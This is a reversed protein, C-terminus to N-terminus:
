GIRIGAYGVVERYDGTVDGSTQYRILEAKKAGLCLSAVIGATTPQFGCMSINEANVVEYLGQADLRLIKDIAHFDKEKAEEQPVYHSMDTSSVILVKDGTEEVARAVAEGLIKLDEFSAYSAISIPVIAIDKNFFCSINKHSGTADFFAKRVCLKVDNAIEADVAKLKM